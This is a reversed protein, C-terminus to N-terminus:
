ALPLESTVLFEDVSVRIGTTISELIHTSVDKLQAFKKDGFKNTYEITIKCPRNFKNITQFKDFELLKEKDKELIVYESM